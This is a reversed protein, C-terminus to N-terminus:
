ERTFPVFRVPILETTVFKGNKKEVLKMTQVKSAPGVPIVMKGGEALQDLLPQPISPAGATVVIADFPGHEPWGKYGDGQKVEINKYGLEKLLKSSSEALAPVIEITYVKSVIEALIAAQYGSGTGIELVKHNRSPNVLSTMYGVIYPQSITQDHGIPLPHDGYARHQISPPVFMHRPVKRMADLTPAHVIGRAEIQDKVMALRKERYDGSQGQACFTCLLFFPLIKM